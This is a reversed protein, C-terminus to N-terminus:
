DGAKVLSTFKAVGDKASESSSILSDPLANWDRITQPSALSIFILILLPSRILKALSGFFHVNGKIETSTCRFVSLSVGDLVQYALSDGLHVFAYINFGCFKGIHTIKDNEKKKNFM